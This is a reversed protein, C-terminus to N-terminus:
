RVIIGATALQAAKAAKKNADDVSSAYALTKGNVEAGRVIATVKQDASTADVEYINIASAVSGAGTHPAPAYENINTADTDEVVTIDFGDGAAFDASGDTIVGMIQDNVTATGGAGGAITFDGLVNGTPSELRFVGGNTAATVCRLTYIGVTAGALVPTTVNLVFTGNGTNGGSKNASSAELVASIKGLVTGAAVKGSGSAITIVARSQTGPLESMLFEGGYRGENFVTM